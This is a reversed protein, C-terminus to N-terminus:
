PEGETTPQPASSTAGAGVSWPLEFWFVNGAEGGHEVGAHGGQAEALRRVLALDLRNGPYARATAPELQEFPDFLRELDEAAIRPGADHVELRFRDPGQARTRVAITGGSATAHLAMSLYRSVMQTFRVPDLTVHTVNPDLELRVVPASREGVVALMARVGAIAQEFELRVPRLELTGLELKAFDVADDVLRLVQRSSAIIDGLYEKHADSIAGVKGRKMLEAFGIVANLPSRLEHSLHNLYARNKPFGGRDGIRDDM